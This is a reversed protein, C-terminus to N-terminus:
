LAAERKKKYNYITTRSLGSQKVLDDVHQSWDLLDL